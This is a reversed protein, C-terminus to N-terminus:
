QGCWWCPVGVDCTRECTGCVKEKPAPPDAYVMTTPYHRGPKAHTNIRFTEKRECPRFALAQADHVIVRDIVTFAGGEYKVEVWGGAPIQQGNITLKFDLDKPLIKM